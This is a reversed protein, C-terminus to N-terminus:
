RQQQQQQREISKSPYPRVVTHLSPKYSSTMCRVGMTGDDVGWWVCWGRRSCDVVVVAWRDRVGDSMGVGWVGGWGGCGDEGVGIGWDSVAFPLVDFGEGGCVADGDVGQVAGGGDRSM